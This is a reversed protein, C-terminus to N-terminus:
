NTGGSFDCSLSFNWTHQKAQRKPKLNGKNNDILRHRCPFCRFSVLCGVLCKMKDCWSFNGKINTIGHNLYQWKKYLLKRHLCNWFLVLIATYHSHGKVVTNCFFLLCKHQFNASKVGSILNLNICMNWFISSLDV